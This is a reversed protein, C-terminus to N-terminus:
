IWKYKLNQKKKWKLPTGSKKFSWYSSITLVNTFVLALATTLYVFGMTILASSATKLFANFGSHISITLTLISLHSRFLHKRRKPQTRTFIDRTWNNSWCILSNMELNIMNPLALFFSHWTRHDISSSM